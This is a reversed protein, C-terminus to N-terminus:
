SVSGTSTTTEPVVTEVVDESAMVALPDRALVVDVEELVVDPDVRASRPSQHYALPVLVAVLLAAAAALWWARHHFRGRSWEALAARRVRERTEADPDGDAEAEVAALFVDRRRRCAVCGLLHEAREAALEEGCLVADLEVDTLHQANM